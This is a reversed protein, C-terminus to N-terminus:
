SCHSQRPIKPPVVSSLKKMPEAQRKKVSMFDTIKKQKKITNNNEIVVEKEALPQPYLDSQDLEDDEYSRRRKPAHTINDTNPVVAKWIYRGANAGIPCVPVEKKFDFEWKAIDNKMQDSFEQELFRKTEEHNIPEFLTRRVKNIGNRNEQRRPLPSRMRFLEHSAQIPRFISTM